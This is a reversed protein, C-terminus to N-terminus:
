PPPRNMLARAQEVTSRHLENREVTLADIEARKEAPTMTASRHTDRMRRGIDGAVSRNSRMLAAARLEDAHDTEVEAAREPDDENLARTYSKWAQETKNALDYFEEAYRTTRAPGTGRYFRQSVPIDPWDLEPGKPYGKLERVGVDTLMLMFDGVSGTYSTVLHDIRKPSVGLVEGVARSTEHTRHDYRDEPLVGGGGGVGTDRLSEIPAERFFSWNMIQEVIPMLTQPGSVNFTEHANWALREAIVKVAEDGRTAFSDVMREPLTGFLFGIEFGKPIRWHHDGIWFHYYLDREHEPLEQYRDDDKNILWLALSALAMLMGKVLFSKPHSRGARYVKYTGQFRANLFPVSEVLFRVIAADGRMSFDLFDRAEFARLLHNKGAKRAHDYAAIRNANEFASGTTQWFDILKAPTDLLNRSLGHKRIEARAVKATAQPDGARVFGSHFGGSAAMMEWFDEGKTLTQGMGRLASVLPVRQNDIMVFAQQTDRVGNALWFAPTATVMSTLLHKPLRFLDMWAGFQVQNMALLSRLLLPDRVRYYTNKGNIRVKVIDPGQPPHVTTMKAFGEWTETPLSEPDIGAAELEMAIAHLPSDPDKIQKKVSSLAVLDAKFRPGQRELVAAGVPDVVGELNEVAQVLAANKTSAEILFATNRLMNEFLNNLQAEGGRLRHIAGAQLSRGGSRPHTVDDNLVRYFPVYDGDAAWRDALERSLYGSQVAMDLHANNFAQWDDNVESFTQALEPNARVFARGAELQAVTIRNERGDAMLREARRYLLYALFDDMNDGVPELIELLGKRGRIWTTSGDSRFMLPGKVLAVWTREATGRTLRARVYASDRLDVGAGKEARDLGRLDDLCSQVTHDRLDTKFDRWKELASPAEPGLAEDVLSQYADRHQAPLNPPPGRRRSFLPLGKPVAERMADTIEVAHVEEGGPETVTDTDVRTRTVKGGWKKVFGGVMRPLMTDYFGRMGTGGIELDADAEGEKEGLIRQVLKEDDILDSLNKIQTGDEMFDGMSGDSRKVLHSGVGTGGGWFIVEVYGRNSRGAPGWTVADVQISRRFRRNQTRGTSWTLVDYGEDVAYRLARKMVLLPWSKRFPANPVGIRRRTLGGATNWHHLLSNSPDGDDADMDKALEILEERNANDFEGNPDNWRHLALLVDIPMDEYSEYKVLDGVYGIQRGDQHWDSQVEELDLARLGDETTREVARLHAVTNLEPWHNSGYTAQGQEDTIREELTFVLEFYGRGGPKKLDASNYLPATSVDNQLLQQAEIEGMMALLTKLDDGIAANGDQAYDMSEISLQELDADTVGADAFNEAYERSPTLAEGPDADRAPPRYHWTLGFEPEVTIFVDMGPPASTFEGLLFAHVQTIQGDPGYDADFDFLGSYRTRLSEIFTHLEGSGGDGSREVEDVHIQNDELYELVQAKTVRAPVAASRLWEIVGSWELEERKADGRRVYAELAEAMKGAPAANPLKAAATRLLQSFFVAAADREPDPRTLRRRSYFGGGQPLRGTEALSIADANDFVIADLVRPGTGSGMEFFGRMNALARHLEREVKTPAVPDYRHKPTHAVLIVSTANTAGVERFLKAAGTNADGTRLKSWEKLPFPLYGVMTNQNDLLLLGDRGKAERKALLKSVSPQSTTDTRRKRNMDGIRRLKREVQPIEATRRGPKLDVRDSPGSRRTPSYIFAERAGPALATMGMSEIGTGELMDELVRTLSLDARSLETRGSPHNHLFWVREVGDVNAIASILLHAYVSAGATTGITHRVVALPKGDAGVCLACMVEQAEKRLGAIASIADADDLIPRDPARFTGTRVNRVRPKLERQFKREPQPADAATFLELQPVAGEDGSRGGSGRRSLRGGAGGSDPLEIADSPAVAFERRGRRSYLIGVLPEPAAGSRLLGAIGRLLGERGSADGDERLVTNALAARKLTARGAKASGGRGTAFADFDRDSVATGDSVREFRGRETSWAVDRLAPIASLYRSASAFLLAELNAQDDGPTWPVKQREHPELHRTTGHKLASSIMAETRRYQAEQSLGAPDGIFVAGNNHAFTGALQYLASGRSSGSSLGVANIFLEPRKGKGRGPGMWHLTAVNGDPMTIYWAREGPRAPYGTADEISVLEMEEVVIDPDIEAAIDTIGRKRSRTIQQTGDLFAVARFVTALDEGPGGRSLRPKGADRRYRQLFQVADAPRMEALAEEALERARERTLADHGAAEAALDALYADAEDITPFPGAAVTGEIRDEIVWGREPAQAQVIYLYPPPTPDRYDGNRDNWSLFEILDDRNMGDLLDRATRFQAVSARSLRGRGRGRRPKLDGAGEEGPRAEGDAGAGRAVEGGGPATGLIEGQEAAEAAPDTGARLDAHVAALVARLRERAEATIGEEGDIAEELQKLQAPTVLTAPSQRRKKARAIVEDTRQGHYCGIGNARNDCRTCNWEKAIRLPSGDIPCVKGRRVEVPIERWSKGGAQLGAGQVPLIVQIRDALKTVHEIDRQGVYVYAVPLDPNAYAKRTNSQDVSLLRVNFNSGMGARVGADDLQRLFEPQKSFVHARVGNRNLEEIFPLWAMNGDGKDFLRLAVNAYWDGMALYQRAATKAARKPNTHVAFNVVEGKLINHDYQYNGGTAYCFEACGKSPDCNLFSSNVALGPKSPRGIYGTNPDSLYTFLAETGAGILADRLRPSADLASNWGPLNGSAAEELAARALAGDLAQVSWPTGKLERLRKRLQRPNDFKRLVGDVVRRISRPMADYDDLRYERIRRARPSETGPARKKRSLRLDSTRRSWTGRNGVASKIQRADFVVYVDTVEGRDMSLRSPDERFADAMSQWMVAQREWYPVEEEEGERQTYELEEQYYAAAADLEGQVYERTLEGREFGELDGIFPARPDVDLAEGDLSVGPARPTDHTDRFIVGDHGQEKALEVLHAIPGGAANGREIIRPNQMSLYVPVTAEGPPNIDEFVGAREERNREMLRRGSVRRRALNAFEAANRPSSTFFYGMSASRAGTSSGRKDPSFRTFIDDGEVATGHYVVLPAGDEDVVKSDRFWRRFADSDTDQGAADWRNDRGARSFRPEGSLDMVADAQAKSIPEVQSGPWNERARRLADEETLGMVADYHVAGGQLVVRVYQKHRLGADELWGLPGDETFGSPESPPREPLQIEDVLRLEGQMGRPVEDFIRAIADIMAEDAARLRERAAPPLTLTPYSPDTASWLTRVWERAAHLMDFDAAMRAYVGRREPYEGAGPILHELFEQVDDVGVREGDEPATGYRDQLEDLFGGEVLHYTVHELVDAVDESIMDPDHYAWPALKRLKKQMAKGRSFKLGARRAWGPVNEARKGSTARRRRRQLEADHVDRAAELVEADTLKRAPKNVGGPVLYPASEVIGRLYGVPDDTRKALRGNLHDAYAAALQEELGPEWDVSGDMTSPNEAEGFFEEAAVEWEQDTAPTRRRSMRPSRRALDGLTGLSRGQYPAEERSLGTEEVKMRAAAPAGADILMQALRGIARANPASLPDNTPEGRVTFDREGQMRVFKLADPDDYADIDRVLHSHHWDADRAEGESFAEAGAPGVYGIFPGGPMRRSFRIDSRAPDFDGTNGVASKIQNAHLPIYAHIEGRELVDNIILGDYGEKELERRVEPLYMLDAPNFGDNWEMRSAVTPSRFEWGMPPKAGPPGIDTEIEVGAARAIAFLKRYRDASEVTPGVGVTLDLPNEMKLYVPVVNGSDGASIYLAYHDAAWPASTFFTPPEFEGIDEQTTGHYLVLPNGDEDVVKSDGFWRRFAETSTIAERAASARSYRPADTDDAFEERYAAYDDPSWGAIVDREVLIEYFPEARPIVTIVYVPKGTRAQLWRMLDTGRIEHGLAKIDYVVTHPLADHEIWDMTTRWQGDPDKWRAGHLSGKEVEKDPKRVPMPAAGADGARRSFRHKGPGGSFLDGQRPLRDAPAESGTLEFSDRERDAQARREAATRELEELRERETRAEDARRLGRDTPAELEFGAPRKWTSAMRRTAAPDKSWARFEELSMATIPGAGKWGPTYNALYGERAAAEDAFGFMVKHEDFGTGDPRRQDVVFIGPDASEAAPGLFVDIHDKDKGVTNRFYGYAHALEPWEPRRRTGAPNEISIDFGHLRVHGKRYNGAEKQAETPEPHPSDPHTAAQRAAADITALDPQEYRELGATTDLGETKAVGQRLAEPGVARDAEPGVAALVAARAGDGARELVRGMAPRGYSMRALDRGAADLPLAELFRELQKDSFPRGGAALDGLIETEDFAAGASGAGVADRGLLSRVGRRTRGGLRDSGLHAAWRNADASIRLKDGGALQRTLEVLAMLRDQRGLIGLFHVGAPKKKAGKFLARLDDESWPHKNSPIGIVVDATELMDAAANWVKAPGLEGLQLPVIVNAGTDLVAKVRARNAGLQRLSAAQDGIVDPAVVYVLSPDAADAIFSDYADFVPGFDKIPTGKRFAPFAGSDLFVQVGDAVADLFAARVAPNFDAVQAGMPVGVDRYGAALGKMNVGSRFGVVGAKDSRSFRSRPAGLRGSENLVRTVAGKLAPSAEFDELGTLAADLAQSPHDFGLWDEARLARLLRKLDDSFLGEELAEDVEDATADEPLVELFREAVERYAYPNERALRIQRAAAASSDLQTRHQAGAWGGPGARRRGEVYRRSEAILARVEQGTLARELSVSRLLERFMRVVRDILEQVRSPPRSLEATIALFEEAIMLQTARDSLDAPVDNEDRYREALQSLVSRGREGFLARVEPTDLEGGGGEFPDALYAELGLGELVQDLVEVIRDGLVAQMGAHGITEHIAVQVARVPHDLNDAVLWVVGDHWMGEVDDPIEEGAVRARLEEVSQVVYTKPANRWFRLVRRMIDRVSSARMGGPAAGGPRRRFPVDSAGERDVRTSADASEEAAGADAGERRPLGEDSRGAEPAEARGSDAAARAAEDLERESPRGEEREPAPVEAERREGEAQPAAGPGTQSRRDRIFEELADIADLNPDSEFEGAGYGQGAFRRLIEEGAGDELADAEIALELARRSFDDALDGYHDPNALMHGPAPDDAPDGEHEEASEEDLSEQARAELEAIEAEVAAEDGQATRVARGSLAQQLADLLRHYGIGSFTEFNFGADELRQLMEDFPVGTGSFVRYIGSGRRGFEAPDIGEAEASERSIGGLKAIAALIDDGPRVIKARRAQEQGRRSREAKKRDQEALREETARLSQELYARQEEPLAGLLEELPVTQSAETYAEKAGKRDALPTRTRIEVNDGIVDVEVGYDESAWWTGDESEKREDTLVEAARAALDPRLPERPAERPVATSSGDLNQPSETSTGEVPVVGAGPELPVAGSAARKAAEQFQAAEAQAAELAAAGEADARRAALVEAPPAPIPPAERPGLDVNIGPQRLVFGGEVARVDYGTIGERQAHVAAARETVFPEGSPARIEAPAGPQQATTVAGPGSTAPGPGPGQGRDEPDEEGTAPTAIPPPRLDQEPAPAGVGPTAAAIGGGMIGGIVGADAIRRIAEDLPINEGLMGVDYAQQLAENVAESAGETFSGMLVRMGYGTGRSLFVGLPVIETLTETAAYFAADMTAEEITRGKARQSGYQEGFVQTGMVSLGATPSRFILGAALAPLTTGVGSEAAQGVLYKFNGSWTARNPEEATAEHLERGIRAINAGKAATAAGGSVLQRGRADTWEETQERRDRTMRRMLAARGQPTDPDLELALEDETRAVSEQPMPSAPRRELSTGPIALGFPLIGPWDGADTGGHTLMRGGARLAAEGTRQMLGGVAQTGRAKMGEYAGEATEGWTPEPANPDGEQPMVAGAVASPVWTAARYPLTVVEKAAEIAGGVEHPLGAQVRGLAEEGAELMKGAGEILGRQKTLSPRTDQDFQSWAFARDEAPVQPAVVDDFYQRRAAEREGEELDLFADSEAVEAWRKAM